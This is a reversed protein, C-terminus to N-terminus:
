PSGRRWLACCAMGSDGRLVGLDGDLDTRGIIAGALEWASLTSDAPHGYTNGAGVSILAVPAGSWSALLPNQYRSGHHPVKVIDYGGAGEMPNPGMVAAQALPEMDGGLLMRIPREGGAVEVSLVVSANNPVSEDSRIIRSPWVVTLSVDGVTRREGMQAAHVPIDTGALAKDVFEVQDSPEALPSVMVESVSRGRLVGSIGGVHDAHFHTLVVLPVSSIGLDALCRDVADPEPGTDVVVGSGDGLPIVLADGQGVSCAVLVLGEPPWGGPRGVRVIVVTALALALALRFAATGWRRKLIFFGWGALILLCIGAAGFAGDPWDIHSWGIASVNRSVLAIWGAPVCALMAIGHAVVPIPTVTAALGLITVPAVAPAALVNAPVSLVSIGGGIWAILPATSVQAAIAVALGMRLWGIPRSFRNSSLWQALWSDIPGALLLIGATASVSLAFGPAVALTPDALLLGLAAASLATLGGRRGGLLVGGVVIAGMATARLVSPQPRVLVVFGILAALSLVFRARRRLGVLAAVGVVVLLLIAVNGGSVATLHALGSRRMDQRFQGTQLSDDGLALGLVLSGADVPGDNVANRLNQRAADAASDVLGPPEIEHPEGSVRISAAFPGRAEHAVGDFSILSGPVIRVFEGLLFEVSQDVEYIAGRVRVRVVQARVVTVNGFLGQRVAPDGTIRAEGSLATGDSAAQALPPASMVTVQRASSAIGACLVVVLILTPARFRFVLVIAFMAVGLSAGACWMSLQHRVDVDSPLTLVWLALLTCTWLLLASLALLRAPASLRGM